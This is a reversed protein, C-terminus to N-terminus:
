MRLYSLPVSNLLFCLFYIDDHGDFFLYRVTKTLIGTLVGRSTFLVNRPGKKQTTWKSALGSQNNIKVCWGRFSKYLLRWPRTRICPRQLRDITISDDSVDNRRQHNNLRVQDVWPRLDAVAV